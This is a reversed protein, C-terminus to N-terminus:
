VLLETGTQMYRRWPIRSALSPNELSDVSVNQLCCFRTGKVSGSDLNKSTWFVNAPTVDPLTGDALAMYLLMLLVILREMRATAGGPPFHYFLILLKM